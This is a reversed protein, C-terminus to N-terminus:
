HYQPRRFTPEGELVPAQEAHLLALLVQAPTADGAFDTHPRGHQRQWLSEDLEHFCIRTVGM